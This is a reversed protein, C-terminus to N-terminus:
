LSCSTSTCTYRIEGPACVSTAPCSPDNPYNDTSSSGGSCSTVVVLTTGSCFIDSGCTVPPLPPPPLLLAAAAAAAAQAAAAAAAADAAPDSGYQAFVSRNTFLLFIAIFFIALLSFIKKSHNQSIM